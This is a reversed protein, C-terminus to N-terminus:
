FVPFAVPIYERSKNKWEVRGWAVGKKLSKGMM